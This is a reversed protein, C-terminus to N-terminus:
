SQWEASPIGHALAAWLTSWVTTFALGQQGADRDAGCVRRAFTLM